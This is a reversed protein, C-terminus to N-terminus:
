RNEQDCNGREIGVAGCRWGTFNIFLSSIRETVETPRPIQGITLDVIVSLETRIITPHFDLTYNGILSYGLVLMRYRM